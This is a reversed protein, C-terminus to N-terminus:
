GATAPPVTTEIKMLEDLVSNSKKFIETAADMAGIQVCNLLSGFIAVDKDKLKSVDRYPGPKKEVIAKHATLIPGLILFL